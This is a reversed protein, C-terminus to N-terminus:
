LLHLIDKMDECNLTLFIIHDFHSLLTAKASTMQAPLTKKFLNRKILFILKELTKSKLRNGKQLCTRLTQLVGAWMAGTVTSHTFVTRVTTLLKSSTQIFTKRAPWIDWLIRPDQCTEGQSTDRSRSLPIQKPTWKRGALKRASTMYLVFLQCKNDVFVFWEMIQLMVNRFHTGIVTFVTWATARNIYGGQLFFVIRAGGWEGGRSYYLKDIFYNSYTCTQM